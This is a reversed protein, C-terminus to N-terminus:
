ECFKKNTAMNHKLFLLEKVSSNPGIKERREEKENALYIQECGEKKNYTLVRTVNSICPQTM